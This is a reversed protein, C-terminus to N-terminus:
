FTGVKSARCVSHQHCWHLVNLVGKYLKFKEVSTTGNVIVSSLYFGAWKVDLALLQM